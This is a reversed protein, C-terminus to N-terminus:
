KRKEELFLYKSPHRDLVNPEFGGIGPRVLHKSVYFYLPAIPHDALLTAEAIGTLAARARRDTDESATDLLRDYDLSAYGPLNQPDDTRFINTFTSAHNYDGFWAFRMIQWESRQERTDLFYQWEMKKLAVDIGLADRWMSTVAIAIKEHIDGTDYTYTVTLPSEDSYGAERYLARAQRVREHASLSRWEFEANQHGAVGPPVLGYAAQEGRGILTVLRERDIAMSLAQRLRTDDFPPETVDYALYYLALFPAIRLDGPASDRILGMSELSVTHSIDLEGARYMNFETRPDVIPLYVIEEIAVQEAQWYAPNRHLHLPGGPTRSALLYAGNGVFKEGNSFGGKGTASEHVPFAIPLALVALLQPMPKALQIQLVREGTAVVALQEVPMSGNQIEPFNRIPNLLFGYVSATAPNAARQIARVFDQATVPDGNSWRADNRLVFSYSLEDESVTWSEAVAPVLEGTASEAVLGEYLDTLVNFAHIDEALAPDLSGPEGGNGRVIVSKSSQVSKSAGDCGVALALAALILTATHSVRNM